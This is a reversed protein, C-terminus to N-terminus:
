RPAAGSVIPAEGEIIDALKEARKLGPEVYEQKEVADANDIMEKRM